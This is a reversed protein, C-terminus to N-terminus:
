WLVERLLLGKAVVGGRGKWTCKIWGLWSALVCQSNHMCFSLNLPVKREIDDKSEYKYKYGEIVEITPSM